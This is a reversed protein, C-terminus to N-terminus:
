APTRLASRRMRARPPPGATSAHSRMWKATSKSPRQPRPRAAATQRSLSLERHPPMPEPARRGARANLEQRRMAIQSVAAKLDIRAKPSIADPAHAPERPPRDSEAAGRTIEEMRETSLRAADPGFPPAGLWAM